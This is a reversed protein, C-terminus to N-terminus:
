AYYAHKRSARTPRAKVLSGYTRSSIFIKDREKTEIREESSMTDVVCDEFQCNFCDRNCKAM